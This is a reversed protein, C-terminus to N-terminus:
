ERAELVGAKTGRRGLDAYLISSRQRWQGHWAHREDMRVKIQTGDVKCQVRLDPYSSPMQPCCSDTCYCLMSRSSQSVVNTDKMNFHIEYLQGFAHILM